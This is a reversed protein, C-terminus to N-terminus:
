LARLKISVSKLFCFLILSFLRCLLLFVFCLLLDQDSTQLWKLGKLLYIVHLMSWFNLPFTCNELKSEVYTDQWTSNTTMLYKDTPQWWIQWTPQWWINTLDTTMLYKEPLNDNSTQGTSQRWINTLNTTMLTQWTPQWWINTLNTTM